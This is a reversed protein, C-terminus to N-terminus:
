DDEFVRLILLYSAVREVFRRANELRDAATVPNADFTMEYDSGVRAEMQYCRNLIEDEMIMLLKASKVFCGRNAARGGETGGARL